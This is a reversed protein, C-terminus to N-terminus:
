SIQDSHAQNSLEDAPASTRQVANVRSACRKVSQAQERLDTGRNGLEKQGRGELIERDLGQDIMWMIRVELWKQSKQSRRGGNAM